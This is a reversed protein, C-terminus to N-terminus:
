KADKKEVGVVAVGFTTGGDGPVNAPLYAQHTNSDVAITRGGAAAKVTQVAAFTGPATERVVTITGDKGNASLAGLVPDYAVGDVGAGIPITALLKGSVSDLIAMQKNGCGVFLRHRVPDIDLGTPAKATGLPWRALVKLEKSDIAVCENKDEVNVFVRGVGDSAGFELVGGVVITAPEKDLQAPDIVTVDGGSHCFAFVKKSAPDYLIADPNKGTKIKRTTKFTKLDFVAVSNDKGCTAFGLDAAIAIGHAGPIDAVEGLLTGKDLDLVMVRTARAIYLRRAVADVLPYDWGGKAGVPFTKLLKLDGAMAPPQAPALQAALLAGFTVAFFVIPGQYRTRAM